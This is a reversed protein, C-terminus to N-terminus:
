THVGVTRTITRVQKIMHKMDAYRQYCNLSDKSVTYTDQLDKFAKKLTKYSEGIVLKTKTLRNVNVLLPERTPDLLQVLHWSKPTGISGFSSCRRTGDPSSNTSSLHFTDELIKQTVTSFIGLPDAVRKQAM